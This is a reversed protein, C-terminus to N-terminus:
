KKCWFDDPSNKCWFAIDRPTAKRVLHLFDDVKLVMKAVPLQPELSVWEPMVSPQGTNNFNEKNFVYVYLLEGYRIMGDPMLVMQYPEDDVAFSGFSSSDKTCLGYSIAVDINPVAYIGLQNQEAGGGVDVAQRPEIQGEINHISGHFVYKNGGDNFYESYDIYHNPIASRTYSLVSERILHRLRKRTLKM